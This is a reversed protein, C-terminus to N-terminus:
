MPQALADTVGVDDSEDNRVLKRRSASNSNPARGFCQASQFNANRLPADIEALIEHLLLRGGGVM